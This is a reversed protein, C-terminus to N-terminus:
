TKTSLPIFLHRMNTVALTSDTASLEAPYTQESFEKLGEVPVDVPRYRWFSTVVATEGCVRATLELAYMQLGAQFYLEGTISEAPSNMAATDIVEAEIGGFAVPVIQNFAVGEQILQQRLSELFSYCSLAAPTKTSFAAAHVSKGGEVLRQNHEALVAKGAAGDACLAEIGALSNTQMAEVIANCTRAVATENSGPWLHWPLYEAGGFVLGAVAILCTVFTARPAFSRRRRRGVTANMLNDEFELRTVKRRTPM